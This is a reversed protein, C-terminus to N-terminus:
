NKFKLKNVNQAVKRGQKQSVECSNAYHIGGYVRSDGAENAAKEFSDYSRPALGLPDNSYDTFKYNPGFLYTLTQSCAGSGVAHGSPYEPHPPTGGLLPLWDSKQMVERIYTIPRLTNYKYKGKWCSITADSQAITMQAYAVVAEDLTAKELVLIQALISLWHGAAYSKGDPNDAWYFAIAKQEATANQSLDYVEKAMAFYPSDMEESYAILTGQDANKDSDAVLPRCKGWNPLAPPAMAPPTPVWIGPIGVPLTYPTANDWGDSKSWEFVAAAIQKGLEVSRNFEDAPVQAQYVANNSAELADIAAKNEASTAPFFNRNMAALTANASALWHYSLGSLPAPLAPLGNLQGVLTKHGNPLGPLVSEYLAIATYAFRRAQVTPSSPTTQNLKLQMNIWSLAVDAPYLTAKKRNADGASEKTQASPDEDKKCSTSLLLCFFFILFPAFWPTRSSFAKM